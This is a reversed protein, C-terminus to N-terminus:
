EGDMGVAGLVCNMLCTELIDGYKARLHERLLRECLVITGFSACTESYCAGAEQLDPLYYRPGFGENRRVSGIGGTIYMKTKVMEDFLRHTAQLIDQSKDPTLLGYHLAGTLYYVARVCHGDIEQHETLPLHAQMYAYDRPFRFNGKARFDTDPDVGRAVCEHDFFIRGDADNKGRERILYEATDLFLPENTVEYLRILALELEQHGDYGGKRIVTKHLLEIFRRCVDILDSSATLIFYAVAFEALHGLSYLEHSDRLNTFRKEPEHVTYYASLYGDEWQAKKVIDIYAEVDERISKDDHKMLYYCCAELSKYCDSDWFPHVPTPATKPTWTLAYFRGTDKLVALITPLTVSRFLLDLQGYFPSTLDVSRVPAPTYLAM